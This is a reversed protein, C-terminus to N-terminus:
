PAPSAANARAIEDALRDLEAYTEVKPAGGINVPAFWDAKLLPLMARLTEPMTPGWGYSGIIAAFRAKPRLANTLYAAAAM